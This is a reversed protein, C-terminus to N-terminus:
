LPGADCADQCLTKALAATVTDCLAKCATQCVTLPTGTLTGCTRKEISGAALALETTPIASSAAVLLTLTALVNFRM